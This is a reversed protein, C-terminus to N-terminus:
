QPLLPKWTINGDEVDNLLDAEKQDGGATGRPAKNNPNIATNSSDGETDGESRISKTASNPRGEKSVLFM